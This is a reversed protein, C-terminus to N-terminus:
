LVDETLDIDEVQTHEDLNAYEPNEETSLTNEVRTSVVLNSEKNVYRRKVVVGAVAAGMIALITGITIGAVPVSSEMGNKSSESDGSSGPSATPAPNSKQELLDAFDQQGCVIGTSSFEGQNAIPKSNIDVYCKQTAVVPIIELTTPLEEDTPWGRPVSVQWEGYLPIKAFINEKDISKQVCIIDTGGDPKLIRQEENGSACASTHYSFLFERQKPAIFSVQEMESNAQFYKNYPKLVSSTVKIDLFIGKTRPKPLLSGDAARFVLRFEQIEANLFCNEEQPFSTTLIEFAAFNSQNSWLDQFFRSQTLNCYPVVDSKLQDDDNLKKSWESVIGGKNELLKGLLELRQMASPLAGEPQKYEFRLQCTLSDIEVVFQNTQASVTNLSRGPNSYHLTNCYALIAQSASSELSAPFVGATVDLQAKILKSANFAQFSSLRGYLSWVAKEWNEAHSAVAVQRQRLVVKERIAHITQALLEQSAAGFRTFRDLAPMFRACDQGLKKKLADAEAQLSKVSLVREFRTSTTTSFRQRMELQMSKSQELRRGNVFSPPAANKQCLKVDDSTLIDVIKVKALEWSLTSDLLSSDLQTDMIDLQDDNMWTVAQMITMVMTTLKTVLLEMAKRVQETAIVIDDTDEQADKKIEAIRDNYMQNIKKNFGTFQDILDMVQQVQGIVPLEKTLDETFATKFSSFAAEMTGKNEELTPVLDKVSHSKLAKALHEQAEKKLLEKPSLVTKAASAAASKAATIIAQQVASTGMTIVAVGLQIAIVLLKKGFHILWLEREAKAVDLEAVKKVLDIAITSISQLVGTTGDKGVLIMVQEQTKLLSDQSQKLLEEVNLSASELEVGLSSATALSNEKMTNYLDYTNGKILAALNKTNADNITATSDIIFQANRTLAYDQITRQLHSELQGISISSSDGHDEVFQLSFWPIQKKSNRQLESRLNFARVLSGVTYILSLSAEKGAEALIWSAVTGIDQMVSSCLDVSSDFSALALNNVALLLHTGQQYLAVNELKASIECGVLSRAYEVFERLGLRASRCENDNYLMEGPSCLLVCLPSLITTKTKLTKSFANLDVIQENTLPSTSALDLSTILRSVLLKREVQYYKIDAVNIRGLPGGCAYARQIARIFKESDPGFSIACNAYESSVRIFSQTKRSLASEKCFANTVDREFGCGCVTNEESVAAECAAAFPSPSSEKELKCVFPSAKTLSQMIWQGTSTDLVVGANGVVTNFASKWPAYSGVGGVEEHYKLFYFHADDVEINRYIGVWPLASLTQSESEPGRWQLDAFSHILFKTDYDDRPEMLSGFMGNQTGFKQCHIEAQEFIMPTSVFGFCSTGSPPCNVVERPQLQCLSHHLTSLPELDWKGDNNLVAMMDEQQHAILNPVWNNYSKGFVATPDSLYYFSSSSSAFKDQRIGLWPYLPTTEWQGAFNSILSSTSTDRPEALKGVMNNAMGINRCTTQADTAFELKASLAFCSNETNQSCTVTVEPNIECVAPKFEDCPNTTWKGDVTGATVCEDANPNLEWPTYDLGVQLYKGPTSLYAVQGTDTAKILGIWFLTSDWGISKLGNVIFATTETNRPEVLKGIRGLSKAYKTCKTIADDHTSFEAVFGFCQDNTCKIDLPVSYECVFESKITCDHDTFALSDPEAQVCQKKTLSGLNSEFVAIGNSAYRYQNSKFEVGIMPRIALWNLQNLTQQLFEMEEKHMPEVLKGKRGLVSGKDVCLDQAEKYPLKATVFDFIRSQFEVKQYKPALVCIIPKKDSLHYITPSLNGNALDFVKGQAKSSTAAWPERVNDANWGRNRTEVQIQNLIENTLQEEAAITGIREVSKGALSCASKAEDFTHHQTTLAICSSSYDSCSAAYSIESQITYQCLYNHNVTCSVATASYVMDKNWHQCACVGSSKPEGSDWLPQWGGFSIAESSDSLYRWTSGQKKMGLWSCGNEPGNAYLRYNESGGWLANTRAGANASTPEALTGITGLEKGNRICTKLADDFNSSGYNLSGGPFYGVYRKGNFTTESVYGEALNVVLTALITVLLIKM